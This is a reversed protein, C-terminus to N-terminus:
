ISVGSVYGIVNKGDYDFVITYRMNSEPVFRDDEVSDGKFKTNEPFISYDAVIEDPTTFYLASTYGIELDNFDDITINDSVIGLSVVRNNSLVEIYTVVDGSDSSINPKIENIQEDVYEKTVDTWEYHITANLLNDNGEAITIADWQSKTGKYYVDTLTTADVFASFEISKLSSPLSITKINFNSSFGRDAIVEVGEPINIEKLNCDRIKVSKLTNPLIWSNVNAYLYLDLETVTYIKGDIECEYPVVLRDELIEFSNEISYVRATLADENIVFFKFLSADSPVVDINGYYKFIKEKDTNLEINKGLENMKKAIVKNQVANESTESLETDIIGQTVDTQSLAMSAMARAVIDVM